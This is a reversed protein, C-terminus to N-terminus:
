HMSVVCLAHMGCYAAGHVTAASQPAPKVHTSASLQPQLPLLPVPVSGM